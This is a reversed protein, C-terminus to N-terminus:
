YKSIIDINVEKLSLFGNKNIDIAEFIERLKHGTMKILVKRENEIERENEIVKTLLEYIVKRTDASLM